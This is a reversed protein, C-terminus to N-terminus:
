KVYQSIISDSRTGQFVIVHLLIELTKFCLPDTSTYHPAPTPAGLWHLRPHACFAQAMQLLKTLVHNTWSSRDTNQFTGEVARLHPLTSTLLGQFKEYMPLRASELCARDDQSNWLHHGSCWSGRWAWSPIINPPKSRHPGKCLGSQGAITLFGHCSNSVQWLGTQIAHTKKWWTNSGTKYYDGWTDPKKM